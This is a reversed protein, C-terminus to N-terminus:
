TPQPILPFRQNHSAQHANSSTILAVVLYCSIV